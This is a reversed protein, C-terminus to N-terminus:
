VLEQRKLDNRLLTRVEDAILTYAASLRQQQAARLTENESSLRAVQAQLEIKRTSIEKVLSALQAKRDLDELERELYGSRRTLERLRATAESSPLRQLAALKQSTRHWEEELRQLKEQGLEDVRERRKSQLLRSQRIQIGSENILASIRTRVREVELPTKCLHCVDGQTVDTLPAYCAPCWAFRIEEIDDAVVRSNQLAEIKNELSSIFADSDAM